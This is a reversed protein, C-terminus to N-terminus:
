APVIAIMIGPIGSAMAVGFMVSYVGNDFILTTGGDSNEFEGLMYFGSDILANVYLDAFDSMHGAQSIDTSAYFYGGSGDAPDTLDVLADIGLLAGFDPVGPFAAYSGATPQTQAPQTVTVTCQASAGSAAQATIVASGAAVATVTGNSVTAVGTNSSSWALASDTADAPTVAATLVGSGGVELSLASQSLTVATVPNEKAPLTLTISQRQGPLAMRAVIAAVSARDITAEPLFSGQKDSGTLVGARYLAYVAEYDSSGVAVDPIAGAEIENIATLASEPLAQALIAAFQRRTAAANYDSYRGDAIIGNEVAYDVYVQYWPSGQVFDAAGTYYISHLRCALALASGVTISGNPDFTTQSTGSVLGLEYANEVSGAYWSGPSVDTFQGDAYTRGAKFNDMSEAAFAAGPLLSLCLAAAALMSGIRKRKM